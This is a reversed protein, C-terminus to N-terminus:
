SGNAFRRLLGNQQLDSARQGVVAAQDSQQADGGVACSRVPQDGLLAAVRQRDTDLHASSVIGGM